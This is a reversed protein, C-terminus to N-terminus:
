QPPGGMGGMMGMLNQMMEPNQAMQQAMQAVMPNNLLQSMDPMGGAGGAGGFMSALGALDPMGAPMGGAPPAGAAEARPSEVVPISTGDQTGLAERAAALANLTLESDPDIALAPEYALDIADQAQGLAMYASGMRRYAKTYEPDLSVAKRCDEVADQARDLRLYVAARNAYFTADTSFAKIAASYKELALDLDGAQFATNGEKKLATGAEKNEEGGPSEDVPRDTPTNGSFRAAFKAAALDVRKQYEASGPTTGEFYGQATLKEM